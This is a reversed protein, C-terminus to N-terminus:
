LISCGMGGSQQSVALKVADLRDELVRNGKELLLVSSPHITSGLHADLPLDTRLMDGDITFLNLKEPSGVLRGRDLKLGAHAVAAELVKITDKERDFFMHVPKAPVDEPFFIAFHCRRARQISADGVASSPSNSFTLLKDPGAGLCQMCCSMIDCTSPPPVATTQVLRQSELTTSVTWYSSRRAACRNQVGRPGRSSPAARAVVANMKLETVLECEELNM